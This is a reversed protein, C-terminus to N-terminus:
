ERASSEISQSIYELGQNSQQLDSVCQKTERCLLETVMDKQGRKIEINKLESADYM